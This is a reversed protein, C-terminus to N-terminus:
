IQTIVALVDQIRVIKMRDGFDKQLTTGSYDSILVKDGRKFEPLVSLGNKLKPWEGIERVIGKASKGCSQKDFAGDPLVIGGFTVNQPSVIEILTQGALPHITM